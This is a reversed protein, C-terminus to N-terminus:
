KGMKLMRLPAYLEFLQTRLRLLRNLDYEITGKSQMAVEALERNREPRKSQKHEPIKSFIRGM